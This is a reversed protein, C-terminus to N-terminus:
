AGDTVEDILGNRILSKKVIDVQNFKEKRTAM